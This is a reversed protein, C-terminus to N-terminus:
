EIGRPYPPLTMWHTVKVEDNLYMTSYFLCCHNWGKNDRHGTMMEKNGMRNIAFFLVEEYPPPLEKTVCIWKQMCNRISRALTPSSGVDTALM